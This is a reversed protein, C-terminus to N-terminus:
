KHRARRNAGNPLEILTRFTELPRLSEFDADHRAQARVEPSITIAKSLFSVAAESEGRRAEVAALLYLALDQRPDDALVSQALREALADDSRNLAATAATLREEITRPDAPRRRIERECLDLYLRSRELLVREGPFRDALSRFLDAAQKYAHEQLSHMGREFLAVAQPAPVPQAPVQPQPRPAPPPPTTKVPPGAKARARKAM